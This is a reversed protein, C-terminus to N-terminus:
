GGADAAMFAVDDGEALAEARTGHSRTATSRRWARARRAAGRGRRGRRGADGRAGRRSSPAVTRLLARARQARARRAGRPLRRDRQPQARQGSAPARHALADRVARVANRDEHARRRDHGRRDPGAVHPLGSGAATSLRRHAARGRGSRRGRRCVRCRRVASAPVAHRDRGRVRGGGGGPGGRPGRSHGADARTRRARGRRGACCAAAGSASPGTRARRRGTRRHRAGRRRLNAAVADHRALGALGEAHGHPEVTGGRARSRCADFSGLGRDRAVPKM